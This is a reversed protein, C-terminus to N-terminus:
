AKLDNEVEDPIVWEVMRMRFPYDEPIKYGHIATLCNM